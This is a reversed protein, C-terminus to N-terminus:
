TANWRPSSRRTTPATRTWGSSPRRTPSGPAPSPWSSGTRSRRTRPRACASSTARSWRRNWCRRAPRCRGRPGHRQRRDRLDQRALRIGRGEAGDPRRQARQGHDDSRLRRAEQLGRHRGPLRRAYCRDPIMRRPTTCSATRAGCRAPRRPDDAPMSADVIVDSPVHLNTIGKDSNVMALEPRAAQLLGPHRSRDRRAQGEPLTAIKAYLDGLGNNSTSAWNRSSRPTSRSSTRSSLRVGCPRVHDPDSVKMMTAKLHLSLLVGQQKADQSRSRTSSACARPPEHRLRRHDRGGQAADEGQAGHDTGDAGVFEIRFSGAEAVTVSKESGYFDGGNMHAVHTKSDASWAGMKHPHKRAYNSSRPLRAAIRTAKACCRTSPAASCRATARRSKRKPM